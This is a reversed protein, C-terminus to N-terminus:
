RSITAFVQVPVWDSTTQQAYWQHISIMSPVSRLTFPLPSAYSHHKCLLTVSHLLVAQEGEGLGLHDLINYAAALEARAIDESSSQTESAIM